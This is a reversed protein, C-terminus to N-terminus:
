EGGEEDLDLRVGDHDEDIPEGEEEDQEEAIMREALDHHIVTARDVINWGGNFRVAAFREADAEEAFIYPESDRDPPNVVYVIM